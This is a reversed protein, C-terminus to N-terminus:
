TASAVFWSYYTMYPDIAQVSEFSLKILVEEPYLSRDNEKGTGKNM